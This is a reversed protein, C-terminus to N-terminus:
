GYVHLLIKGVGPMQAFESNLSAGKLVGYITQVPSYLSFFNVIGQRANVTKNKAASSAFATPVPVCPSGNIKPGVVVVSVIVGTM